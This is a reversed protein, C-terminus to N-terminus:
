DWFRLIFKRYIELLMDLYQQQLNIKTLMRTRVPFDYKPTPITRVTYYGDTPEEDIDLEIDFKDFGDNGDMLRDILEIAVRANRNLSDSVREEIHPFGYNSIDQLAEKHSYLLGIYDYPRHSLLTGRFVWINRVFNKAKFCWNRMINFIYESKRKFSIYRKSICVGSFM